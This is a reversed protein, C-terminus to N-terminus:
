KPWSFIRVKGLINKHAAKGGLLQAGKGGDDAFAGELGGGPAEVDRGRGNGLAEFGQFVAGALDQQTAAVRDFRGRGPFHHQAQGPLHCLELFVGPALQSERRTGAPVVAQGNSDIGVGKGDPEQARQGPHRRSQIHGVIQAPVIFLM